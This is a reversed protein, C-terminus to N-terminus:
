RSGPVYIQDFIGGDGFHEQQAKQWGGFVDDITFMKVEVFKDAFKALVEEDRPRYHHKAVIEQGEKSYLFELYAEAIERTGRRDVNNDIIAVPPEALISVSPVVIEYDGKGFEESTLKAQNEWDLLVDGLQANVFDQSAGRAGSAMKKVNDKYLITLFEQAKKQAAAVEEAAAPNHLKELDGLERELVYGWAALYAWRAVGSSKPHAVVVEVGSKVLDSWDRINKPNDRRVLFVVTSSYPTSNHPLRQQWDTPLLGSQAIHDIDYALALTVVDAELGEIVARAQVSSGGHSMTVRVTEGTQKKYHEIFATNFEIYLERTPDYSVNVLKTSSERQCGVTLVVLLLFLVILGKRM